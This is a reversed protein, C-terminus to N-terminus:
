AARNAQTHVLCGAGYTNALGPVDEAKAYWETQVIPKGSWADWRALLRKDPEWYGYYNVSFVDHYVALMKRFWPNGPTDLGQYRLFRVARPHSPSTSFRKVRRRM